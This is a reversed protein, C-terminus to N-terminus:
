HRGHNLHVDPASVHDFDKIKPLVLALYRQGAEPSMHAACERVHTAIASECVLRLRDVQQDAAALATADAQTSRLANRAQTALQIDRCHEECVLSYSDHLKKIAAFQENSLQFDTRLWEMADKQLLVAQVAPDGSARYSFFGAAGAIVALLALTAFLHKM